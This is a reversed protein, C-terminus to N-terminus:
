CEWFLAGCDLIGFGESEVLLAAHAEREDDDQAPTMAAGCFSNLRALEDLHNSCKEVSSIDPINCTWAGYAYAGLNRKKLNSSVGDMKPCDRAGTILRVVSSVTRHIRLVTALEQACEAKGKRAAAM